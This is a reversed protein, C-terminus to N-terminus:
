TQPTTNTPFVGGSKGLFQAIINVLAKSALAIAIGILAYILTSMAKKTKVQDGGATAYLYGSYILVIVSIVLVINFVWNLATELLNKPKISVGGAVTEFEGIPYEGLPSSANNTQALVPVVFLSLILFIGLLLSLLNKM